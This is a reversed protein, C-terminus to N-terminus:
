NANLMGDVFLGDVFLMYCIVFLWLYCIVFFWFMWLYCIVWGCIVWGNLYEMWLYGIIGDV